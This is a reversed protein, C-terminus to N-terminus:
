GVRETTKTDSIKTKKVVGKKTYLVLSEESEFSDIPIVACVKEDKQMDLFNIINRGKSIRSGEPIDYAKEM